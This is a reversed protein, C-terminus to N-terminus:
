KLKENSIQPRKPQHYIGTCLPPWGYVTNKVEVRAVKEMVKLVEKKFSCKRMKDGGTKIIKRYMISCCM